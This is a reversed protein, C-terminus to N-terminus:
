SAIARKLSEISIVPTPDVQRLLGLYVSVLDVFLVGAAVRAIATEGPLTVEHVGAFAERSIDLTAAIRKGVQPDEDVPSRLIVNVFREDPGVGDWGVIENHDLEPYEASFCPRKANENIQCKARLAVLAPLGRGGHIIPIRDQLAVALNLAVNEDAPAEPGWVELLADLQDGVEALQGSVPAIVGARELAVLLPVALYALSARPQRGGPVRVSPVDREDAIRGVAGGSTVAHLPSGSAIAEAVCSLTEETNGSYSVAVLPTDPGRWAPLHYGKVPIVPAAGDRAALMQAVDGAIGSGGMGAVFVARASHDFSPSPGAEAIELAHRWQAPSAVVTGLMDSPDIAALDLGSLPGTATM